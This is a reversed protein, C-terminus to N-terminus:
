IVGSIMLALGVMIVIFTIFVSREVWSLTKWLTPLKENKRKNYVM